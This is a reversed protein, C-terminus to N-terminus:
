LGCMNVRCTCYLYITWMRRRGYIINRLLCLIKGRFLLCLKESWSPYAIHVYSCIVFYFGRVQQLLVAEEPCVRFVLMGYGLMGLGYCGLSAIAYMPLQLLGGFTLDDRQTSLPWLSVLFFSMLGNVWQLDLKEPGPSNCHILVEISGFWHTINSTFLRVYTLPKRESRSIRRSWCIQCIYPFPFRALWIEFYRVLWVRFGLMMSWIFCIGNYLDLFALVKENALEVIVIRYHVMNSLSVHAGILCWVEFFRVLFVRFGSMM